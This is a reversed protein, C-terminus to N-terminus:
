ETRHAIRMRSGTATWFTATTGSAAFVFTGISSGNKNVTFTASATAAVSAKALSGTFNSPITFARVVAIVAATAGADPKDIVCSGVDYPVVPKNTLDTYSGSTAVTALGTIQGVSHTHSAVPASASQIMSWASGDNYYLGVAYTSYATSLYVLRAKDGVVVAPLTTVTEVVLNTVGAGSTINIGDYLM